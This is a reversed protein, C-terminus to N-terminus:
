DNIVEECLRAITAGYPVEDTNFLEQRADDLKAKEEGSVKVTNERPM